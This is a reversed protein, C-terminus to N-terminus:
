RRCAELAAGIKGDEDEIMGHRLAFDAGVLGAEVTMEGHAIRELLTAPDLSLFESVEGDTNCPTFGPPLALDHIFLIERHLGDPVERCVRLVGAPRAREALAVPIGAEEGCERLLTQWADQGSPVGGAVLTDLLGPDIAKSAARRTILIRLKEGEGAYGNLHAASSTLGFFRMAARELHFLVAAGDDARIAYTEDRWGRITGERALAQAVEALAASLVAEATPRLCINIESFEFVGPWARLRGAHDRRIWGITNAGLALPLYGQPRFDRAARLAADVRPVELERDTRVIRAM